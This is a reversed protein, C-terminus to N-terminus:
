KMVALSFVVNLEDQSHVSALTCNDCMISCQTVAEVWNKESSDMFICRDGLPIFPPLCDHWTRGVVPHYATGWQCMSPYTEAPSRDRLGESALSVCYAIPDIPYRQEWTLGYLDDYTTGDDWHLGGDKRLGTWSNTLGRFHSLM